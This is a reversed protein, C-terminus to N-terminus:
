IDMLDTPKLELGNAMASDLLPKHWRQPIAGGSGGEKRPYSWKYITILHLDHGREKLAEQVKKASGFANIVNKYPRKM